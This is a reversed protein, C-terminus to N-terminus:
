ESTNDASIDTGMLFKLYVHILYMILSFLMAGASIVAMIVSLSVNEYSVILTGVTVALICTALKGYWKSAVMERAGKKAMMISGALILLDKVFILAALFIGIRTKVAICVFATAQMLKDALPDMVKGFDSVWHHKRALYGDIVDTLGALMFIGLAYYRHYPFDAFFVAAFCPIMLFRLVSLYNPIHEKKLIRMKQKGEM